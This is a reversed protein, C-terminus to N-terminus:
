PTLIETKRQESILGAAVLAAMGAVTRTDTPDIEQAGMAKALWLNLDANALAATSIAAQEDTTFREIFELPTFTVPEAPIVPATFTGGEYSWGPSVDAACDVWALSSSVPFSEAAVQAVRGDVILAKM